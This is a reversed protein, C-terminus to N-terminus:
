LSGLQTDFIITVKPDLVLVVKIQDSFLQPTKPTTRAGRIYALNRLLGTGTWWWGCSCCSSGPLLLWPLAVLLSFVGLRPSLFFSSVLALRCSSLLGSPLAVLLFFIDVLVATWLRRVRHTLQLRVQVGVASERKFSHNLLTM